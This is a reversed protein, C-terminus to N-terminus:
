GEYSVEYPHDKSGDGSVLVFNGELVSTKRNFLMKRISVIGVGRTKDAYYANDGDLDKLWYDHDEIMWSTKGQASDVTLDHEEFSRLYDKLTIYDNDSEYRILRIEDTSLLIKGDIIGLMRYISGDYYIYNNVDKGFYRYNGEEDKYVHSDNMITDIFYNPKHEDLELRFSLDPNTINLFLRFGIRDGDKGYPSLTIEQVFGKELKQSEGDDISYQVDYDMVDNVERLCVQYTVEEDKKNIISIYNSPNEMSMNKGNLYVMRIDDTSTELLSMQANIGSEKSFSMGLLLLSVLMIAFLEIYFRKRM